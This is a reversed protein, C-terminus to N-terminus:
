QVGSLRMLRRTEHFVLEQAPDDQRVWCMWPLEWPLCKWAQEVRGTLQFVFWTDCTEFDFIHTVDLIQEVPAFKRVPRGMVYYAPTSFVFGHAKHHDEYWQLSHDRTRAAWDYATRQYPSLSEVWSRPMPPLKGMALLKSVASM